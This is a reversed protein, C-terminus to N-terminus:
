APGANAVGAPVFTPIEFCGLGVSKVHKFLWRGDSRVYDEEYRALAVMPSSGEFHVTGMFNWIAHATDGTVDICENTVNHQAFLTKAYFETFARLIAARGVHRGNGSDSEWVADDAFLAVIRGPDTGADSLECYLLKLRRIAEIAELHAVRQELSDNISSM